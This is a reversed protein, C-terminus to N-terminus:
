AHSQKSVLPVPTTASAWAAQLVSPLLHDLLHYRYDSTARHPSTRLQVDQRLARGAASLTSASLDKGLLEGEATRARRPVPGSPGVALRAAEIKGSDDLRLWAAVNLIAIALGQPRMVRWFAAGEGLKRQPIAFRVLIEAQRDFAPEGPGKFLSEVPLWRRGDASALEARAELTLLAIVGDAAPLAHAVNGGLTAVNRVQPGGILGCAQRLAPAHRDILPNGAIEWLTAAAGVLLEGEDSVGIGHLEPIATVDILTHPAPVRGSRIDILLDTGGALLRAPWASDGLLSLAQEITAPRHYDEWLRM